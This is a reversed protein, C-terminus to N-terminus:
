AAEDDGRCHRCAVTGPKHPGANTLVLRHRNYCSAQVPRWDAAMVTLGAIVPIRRTCDACQKCALREDVCYTAPDADPVPILRLVARDRWREPPEFDSCLVCGPGFVRRAASALRRQEYWDNPEARQGIVERTRGPRALGSERDIVDRGPKFVVRRPRALHVTDGLGLTVPANIVPCRYRVWARGATWGQLPTGCRPCTGLRAGRHNDGRGTIGCREKPCKVGM